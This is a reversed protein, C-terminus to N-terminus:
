MGYLMSTLALELAIVEAEFASRCKSLFHGGMMKLVPRHRDCDFLVFASAGLGAKYGGDSDCVLKSSKRLWDM